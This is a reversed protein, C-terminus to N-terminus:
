TPNRPRQASFIAALLHYDKEVGNKLKTVAQFCVISFKSKPYRKRARRSLNAGEPRFLIREKQVKNAFREACEPRLSMPVM